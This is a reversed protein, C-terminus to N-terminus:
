LEFLDTLLSRADALGELRLTHWYGRANGRLVVLGAARLATLHHHATSKALGATEALGGLSAEGRALRRVIRVRPIAPHAASGSSASM